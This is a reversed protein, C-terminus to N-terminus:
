ARNMFPSLITSLHPDFYSIHGFYEPSHRAHMLTKYINASTLITIKMMM